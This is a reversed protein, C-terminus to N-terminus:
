MIAQDKAMTFDYGPTHRKRNVNDINIYDYPYPSPPLSVSDLEQM